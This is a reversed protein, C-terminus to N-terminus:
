DRLIDFIARRVQMWDVEKFNAFKIIKSEILDAYEDPTDKKLCVMSIAHEDNDIDESYITIDLCIFGTREYEKVIYLSWPVDVSRKQFVWYDKIM